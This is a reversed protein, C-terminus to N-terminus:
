APGRVTYTDVPYTSTATLTKAGPFGPALSSLRVTCAVTVSVSGPHGTPAALGTTTVSVTSPHCDLGQGTLTAAAARNGAATGATPSRQLSAARAASDAAATVGQGALAIRGAGIILGFIALLGPALVALEMSM